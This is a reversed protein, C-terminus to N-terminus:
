MIDIDEDDVDSFEDGFADDFADLSSEASPGGAFKEDIKMLRVSNLGVAVGQNGARNFAYFNVDFAFWYGSELIGAETVKDGYKDFLNPKGQSEPKKAVMYYCGEYAEYLDPNEDFKDDGERIPDDPNRPIKGKFKTHKGIELADQVAQRLVKETGPALMDKPMLINASYNVKGEFENPELLHLFSGRGNLTLRVVKEGSQVRKAKIKM